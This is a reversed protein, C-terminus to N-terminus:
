DPNQVAAAAVPKLVRYPETWPDFRCISHYACRDCAIENKHRFPAVGVDGAFIDQGFQRLFNKIQDILGLFDTEPM